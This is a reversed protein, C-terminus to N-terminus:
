SKSKGSGVGSKQSGVLIELYGQALNIYSLEQQLHSRDCRWPSGSFKAAAIHAIVQSMSEIDTPEVL